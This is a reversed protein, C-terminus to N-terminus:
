AKLIEMAMTKEEVLEQETAKMKGKSFDDIQVAHSNTLMYNAGNCSHM